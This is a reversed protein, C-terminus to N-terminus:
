EANHTALLVFSFSILQYFTEVQSSHESFVLRQGEEPSELSGLLQIFDSVYLTNSENLLSM